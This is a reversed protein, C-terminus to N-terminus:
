RSGPGRLIVGPFGTAMLQRDAEEMRQKDRAHQPLNNIPALADHIRRSAAMHKPNATDFTEEAAILLLGGCEPREVIVDAPPAIQAALPQSLYVMWDLDFRFRPYDWFKTLDSSFAQAKTVDWISVITTLVSKFVPYAVISPDPIQDGNTHFEAGRAFGDAGGADVGLTVSDPSSYVRNSASVAYGGRPFPEGDEHTYVGREVIETFRSRVDELPFLTESPEGQHDGMAWPGFHPSIDSLADLTQLFKRAIEGPEEPRWGWNFNITFANGSM